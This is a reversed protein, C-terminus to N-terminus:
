RIGAVRSNNRDQTYYQANQNIGQLMLSKKRAIYKHTCASQLLKFQALAAEQPEM